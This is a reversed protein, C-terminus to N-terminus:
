WTNDWVSFGHTAFMGVRHVQAALDPTAPGLALWAVALLLTGAWAPPPRRVPWGLYGATTV